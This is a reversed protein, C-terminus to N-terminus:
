EDDRTASLDLERAVIARSVDRVKSGTAFAHGRIVLLADAASLGLQAIVMGTAQHVERRSFPVDRLVAGDGLEADDVARQMVLRSALQVLVGVQEIDGSDIDVASCSYLCVAGIDLTGLRMPFAFVSRVGDRAFVSDVAPWASGSDAVEPLLVPRHSRHAHWIPGEGLDIQSEAWAEAEACTASVTQIGFPDGLVSVTASVEPLLVLFPAALSSSPDAASLLSVASRFASHDTM